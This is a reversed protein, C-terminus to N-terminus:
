LNEIMNLLKRKLEQKNCVNRYDLVSAQVGAISLGNVVWGMMFSNLLNPEKVEFKVWIEKHHRGLTLNDYAEISKLDQTEKFKDYHNLSNIAHEKTGFVKEIEQYYQEVKEENTMNTTMIIQRYFLSVNTNSGMIDDRIGCNEPM